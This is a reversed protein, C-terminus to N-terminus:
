PLVGLQVLWKAAAQASEKNNLVDQLRKSACKVIFDARQYYPCQFLM